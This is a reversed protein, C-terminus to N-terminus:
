VRGKRELDEFKWDSHPQTRMRETLRLDKRQVGKVKRHLALLHTDELLRVMFMETMEKIVEMTLDVGTVRDAEGRRQHHTGGRGEKGRRVKEHKGVETYVTWTM